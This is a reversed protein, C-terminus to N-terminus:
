GQSMVTPGSPASHNVSCYPLRMPRIVVAPAILSNVSGVAALLGCPIVAPGSPASHNVSCPPSRMPRM